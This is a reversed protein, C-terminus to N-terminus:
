HLSLIRLEEIKAEDLEIGFGPRAPLPIAAGQPRPPDLEFYTKIPKYNLLYEVLPCLMPPQSLVVHLAAHINHGHPIVRVGRASALACIKILESVGGCWEPDAQVIQIAGADLFRAAEWRGYFHEGTAVPLSTGRSLGMFADLQDSSFPEEIWYPRYTEVAKAWQLAYHLDWGNFADFMIETGDGLADRLVRVLEINARLGGPGDGPGYALFWKQYRFGQERLALCRERLVDPQVSFGLCSAYVEARERTPGGLLRYVPVGLARGRLDWLANDVASLGMMYHGARSHRNARYMKDWLMEGALPDQGLLLPRLQNSVVPVVEPDIPGYLGSVGEDARVRLYYASIPREVEAAEPSDFYPAPRHEAYVHLPQVQHQRDRGQVERLKGAVHVFEVEAIKM